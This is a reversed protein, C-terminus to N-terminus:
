WCLSSTQDQRTTNQRQIWRVLSRTDRKEELHKESVAKSLLPAQKATKRKINSKTSGPHLCSMLTVAIHSALETEGFPHPLSWLLLCPYNIVTEESLTSPSFDSSLKSGPLPPTERGCGEEEEKYFAWLHVFVFCACWGDTTGGSASEKEEKVTDWFHNIELSLALM